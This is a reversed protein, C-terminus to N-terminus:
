VTRKNEVRVADVRSAEAPTLKSFKKVNGVAFGAWEVSKRKEPTM